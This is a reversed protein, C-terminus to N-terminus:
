ATTRSPSRSPSSSCRSARTPTRLYLAHSPGGQRLHRGARAADHAHRPQLYNTGYPATMRITGGKRPTQAEAMGTMVLALAAATIWRKM